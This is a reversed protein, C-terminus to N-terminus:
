NLFLNLNMTLFILMVCYYLLMLLNQKAFHKRQEFCKEIKVKGYVQRACSFRRFYQTEHVHASRVIHTSWAWGNVARLNWVYLTPKVHTPKVHTEKRSYFFSLLTSVRALAVAPFDDWALQAEEGPNGRRQGFLIRAATLTSMGMGDGVFLVVGRAVGTPPTTGSVSSRAAASIRTEIARTASEYWVRREAVFLHWIQVICDSWCFNNSISFLVSGHTTQSKIRLFTLLEYKLLITGNKRRRLCIAIKNSFLTLCFIRVNQIDLSNSWNSPFFIELEYHRLIQTLVYLIIASTASKSISFSLLLKKNDLKVCSDTNVFKKCSILISLIIWLINLFYRRFIIRV